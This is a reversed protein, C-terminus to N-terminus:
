KKPILKILSLPSSSRAAPKNEPTPQEADRSKGKMSLSITVRQNAEAEPKEGALPITDAYGAVREIQAADVAYHVLLRRTANARDASLDWASYDPRAIPLGARTHGDIIVNFHNREIMWSLNQMLTEGYETFNATDGAFVPRNPRDFLTIRM